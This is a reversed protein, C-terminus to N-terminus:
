FAGIASAVQSNAERVALMADWVKPDELGLAWASFGNMKYSKILNLKTQFSQADEYWATLIKGNVARYKVWPVGLDDSFGKSIYKGSNLISALAPYGVIKVRQGNADNRVWAYFPIGFSVKNAPIHALTYNAVQTIWPVSATPGVSLSDDYAMISVFDAAAGLVTYDFAGTWNDWSGKGYAVPDDSHQPAIAISIKLGAEHFIPVSRTVFKSYLDRDASAMHEFDYQYGLYNYKQAEKIMSAILKGQAVPDNLFVRIGKQSFDQNSILPMVSVGANKAIELVEKKPHGLLKGAPTSIYTQPAIIDGSYVHDRLSRISKTSGTVYLINHSFTNNTALPVDEAHSVTPVLCLASAFIVATIKALANDAIKKFFNFLM